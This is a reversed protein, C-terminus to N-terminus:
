LATKISTERELSETTTKLPVARVVNHEGPYTEKVIGLPWAGAIDEWHLYGEEIVKFMATKVVRILHEFQSGVLTRPELQIEM